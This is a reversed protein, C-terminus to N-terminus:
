DWFVFEFVFCCGFIEKHDGCGIGCIVVSEDRQMEQYLAENIAECYTIKKM